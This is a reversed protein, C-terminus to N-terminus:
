SASTALMRDWLASLRRLEDADLHSLFGDRVGARYTGRASQVLARGEASLVAFCGRADDTCSCRELLGRRELRDVLRTMGSRSLLTQQALDAMRLRGGDACALAALVEFHSLPLGHAAELEADLQKCLAAHVRVLGRWATRELDTLEAASLDEVAM